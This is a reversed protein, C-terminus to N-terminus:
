IDAFNGAFNNLLMDHTNKHNGWINKYIPILYVCARNDSSILEEENFFKVNIM